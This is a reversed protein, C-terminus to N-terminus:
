SSMVEANSQEPPCQSAELDALLSVNAEQNESRGYSAVASEQPVTLSDLRVNFVSSKQQRDCFARVTNSESQWFNVTEKEITKLSLCDQELCELQQVVSNQFHELHLLRQSHVTGLLSTVNRQCDTLSQMSRAEIRKYRSSFHAKLQTKFSNFAARVGAGLEEESEDELVKTVREAADELSMSTFLRKPKLRPLLQDRKLDGYPESSESPESTQPLSAEIDLAHEHLKEILNEPEEMPFSSDSITTKEQFGSDATIEKLVSSEVNVTRQWEENERREKGHCKHKPTSYKSLEEENSSPSSLPLVRLKGKSRSRKRSYDIQPTDRRLFEESSHMMRMRKKITRDLTDPLSKTSGNSSSSQCFLVTKARAVMTWIITMTLGLDQQHRCNWQKQYRWLATMFTITEPKRDHSKGSCETDYTDGVCQSVKLTVESDSHDKFYFIDKEQTRKLNAGPYSNAGSFLFSVKTTGKFDGVPPSTEPMNLQQTGAYSPGPQLKEEFVRTLATQIHPESSFIIEVKQGTIKGNSIPNMMNVTLIKQGDRDQLNYTSIADKCLHILEWLTNQPDNVFFSITSTGINFDVWFHTLFEDDPKFLETSDLFVRICPFSFVRRSNGFYSNLENLFTRCDTEFDKDRISTFASAFSRFSFWKGAFDERLKKPTMRCLAESIAVQMEYDGIDILAKALDELLGIHDDSQCLRKRIDKPSSDLMSNITRIAELRLSFPADHDLVVAGFRLLFVDLIKYSGASTMQCLSMSVEYFVEILKIAIKTPKQQEKLHESVREFWNLMYVTKVVLGHHVLKHICEEDKIIVHELARLILAVNKHGNRRLEKTVIEDLRDALTVSSKEEIVTMIAKNVNNQVFADQLKSRFKSMTRGLVSAAEGTSRQDTTAYLDQM